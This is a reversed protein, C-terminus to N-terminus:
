SNMTLKRHGEDNPKEKWQAKWLHGEVNRFFFSKTLNFFFIHTFSLPPPASSGHCIRAFSFFLPSLLSSFPSVELEPDDLFIPRAASSDEKYKSQFSFSLFLQRISRM